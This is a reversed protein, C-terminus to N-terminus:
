GKDRNKFASVPDTELSSGYLEIIQNATGTCAFCPSDCKASCLLEVIQRRTPKAALTRLKLGLFLATDPTLRVEKGAHGRATFLDALEAETKWGRGM